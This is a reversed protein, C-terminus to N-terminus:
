YDESMGVGTNQRICGAEGCQKMVQRGHKCAANLGASVFAGSFEPHTKNM